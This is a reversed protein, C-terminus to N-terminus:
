YVGGLKHHDWSVTRTPTFRLGVRKKAQQAIMAQLEPTIKGVYRRFIETGYEEVHAPDHEVAVDCEFMVGRLEEYSVGDEIGVTARPDRALNKAKQSKAFTWGRLEDGDRVFWLPVMHPLGRPGATACQMVKQEDLFARLEDDSM